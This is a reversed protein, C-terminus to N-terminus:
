RRSPTVTVPPNPPMPMSNPAPTITAAMPHIACAAIDRLDCDLVVTGAARV